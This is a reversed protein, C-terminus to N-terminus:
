RSRLFLRAQSTVNDLARVVTDARETMEPSFPADRHAELWELSPICDEARVMRLLPLMKHALATVVAAEGRTLAERLQEQQKETETLFTRIIEESTEPDDETFATLAEFDLGGDVVSTSPHQVVTTETGAEGSRVSGVLVKRLEELSFPKHLCASFGKARFDAEDMDGRATVAIVPLASWGRVDSQRLQRLLAFGDLTPMQVDTLLVDFRQRGLQEFLEDPQGCSVVEVQLRKLLAATLELQLRDDDIQLVRIGRFVSSGFEEGCGGLHVPAVARASGAVPFLPLTVTFATGEGLTSDVTIDGELLAVLKQVISLGLGFGEEGQANKLRVFERFIRDKDERGIGKGTDSVTIVVAPNRYDVKLSVRGTDTFKVANSMLNDTIQRIRFPDGVYACEGLQSDFDCHLTLGKRAAMPEFATRIEEFLHLPHFAIRNVEMKCADLRHYDVLDKVLKLLHESSSKMNQLYVTQREDPRLRQLLDIYGIISGVPAKLDHTITLMLGERVALLDEARQKAEELQRRYRNSRAIDRWILALFLLALVTAGIAIGGVVRVSERRLQQTQELKDMSRSLEEREFDRLLQNIQFTLVQGDRRLRDARVRLLDMRKQRNDSLEVSINRLLDAVTDAPNYAQMLTDTIFEHLTNVVMTSDRRGPAFVEALRKFFGKKEKVQFSDQRVIEKKRVREERVVSDQRAIMEQVNRRYVYDATTDNVARLLRLMNQEKRVLLSSISDLRLWQSSDSSFGRLTDISVVAKKMAERYAPYDSMCGVSVSQGIVEAEYLRSLANGMLRRKLELEAGWADPEVMRETEHYVFRVSYLLLGILLLYGAAVETKIWKSQKQM